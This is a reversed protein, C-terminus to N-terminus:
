SKNRNKLINMLRIAFKGKLIFGNRFQFFAERTENHGCCANMAYKLTGFCGDHGEKTNEKGCFGCDRANNATPKKTDSYVWVGNLYEISHGRLQSKAAM